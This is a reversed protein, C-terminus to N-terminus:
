SNGSERSGGYKVVYDIGEAYGQRYSIPASEARSPDCAELNRADEYGKRSDAPNSVPLPSLEPHLFARLEAHNM